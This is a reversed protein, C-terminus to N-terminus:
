KKEIIGKFIVMIKGSSNVGFWEFTTVMAEEMRIHQRRQKRWPRRCFNDEVGGGHDVLASTTKFSQAKVVVM